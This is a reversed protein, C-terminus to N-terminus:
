AVSKQRIFRDLTEVLLDPCERHPTHGIGPLICMEGRGAAIRRPHEISGYEDDAGHIALLPCEVRRLAPELSWDAFDTSLWTDLWAHLVWAAKDGHYRALRDMTDPLAFESRARRLGELTRDEVFAQAAITVVALCQPGAQAAAEIAMGGGVSHGCAIFDSFGLDARLRPLSRRAENAIFAWELRDALPDSRGFGLRDYAIVPRDLSAALKSPFDRWLAVCGLSDHFLLVPPKSASKPPAWTKAFLGGDPDKIWHEREEIGGLESRSM